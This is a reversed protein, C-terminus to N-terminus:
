ALLTACTCVHHENTVNNSATVKSPLHRNSSHAADVPDPCKCLAGFSARKMSFLLNQEWGQKCPTNLSWSDPAVAIIDEASNNM